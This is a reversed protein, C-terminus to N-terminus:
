KIIESLAIKRVVNGAADAVLVSTGDTAIGVPRELPTQGERPLQYAAIQKGSQDFVLV